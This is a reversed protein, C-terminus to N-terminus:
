LTSIEYPLSQHIVLTCKFSLSYPIKRSICNQRSCSATVRHFNKYKKSTYQSKTTKNKSNLETAASPKPAPCHTCYFKQFYVSYILQVLLLSVVLFIPLSVLFLLFSVISGILYSLYCLHKFLFFFHVHHFCHFLFQNFNQM